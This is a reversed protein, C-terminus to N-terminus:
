FSYSFMGYQLPSPMWPLLDSVASLVTHLSSMIVISGGAIATCTSINSLCCVLMFGRFIRSKQTQSTKNNSGNKKKNIEKNKSNKGEWWIYYFYSLESSNICIPTCARLARIAWFSYALFASLSSPLAAWSRMKLDLNQILASTSFNLDWTSVGCLLLAPSSLTWSRILTSYRFGPDAALSCAAQHSVTCLCSADVRRSHGYPALCQQIM